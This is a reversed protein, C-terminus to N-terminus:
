KGINTGNAMRLGILGLAGGIALLPEGYQNLGLYNLAAAIGVIIAGYIAKSKYWPKSDAM